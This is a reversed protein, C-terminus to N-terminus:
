RRPWAEQEDVVVRVRAVNEFGLQAGEAVVDALRGAALISKGDRGLPARRDDEAVDPQRPDVSVLDRSAQAIEAELREEEYREGAASGVVISLLRVLCTEVKM